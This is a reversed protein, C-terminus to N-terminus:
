ACARVCYTCSTASVSLYAIDGQKEIKNRSDKAWTMVTDDKWPTIVEAQYWSNFDIISDKNKQILFTVTRSTQLFQNANMRFLDPEFYTTECNRLLQSLDKLRREWPKMISGNIQLCQHNLVSLHKELKYNLSRIVRM